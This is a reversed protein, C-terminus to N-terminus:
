KIVILHSDTIGEIWHKVMPKILLYEGSLLIDLNGTEDEYIISGLICVLFIPVEEIQEKLLENCNIHIATVNGEEGKFLPIVSVAEEQPHIEKLNM